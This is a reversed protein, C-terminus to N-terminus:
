FKFGLTLLIQDKSNKLSIDEFNPQPNYLGFKETSNRYAIDAFFGNAMYGLGLSVVSNNDSVKTEPLNFDSVFPTPYYEFGARASLSQTFKLEGGMRLNFVSKFSNKVNYNLDSVDYKMSSYDVIEGDISLLAFKNIVVAGSLVFKYPSNLGYNYLSLGDSSYSQALHSEMTLRMDDKVKFFTPAHFAAGLRVFSVPKFIAGLKLNYGTGKIYNDEFYTFSNNDELIETYEKYKTIDVDQIGFTAGIYFKHAFNLGGAFVYEKIGGKYSYNIQQDVLEDEYLINVYQDDTNANVPDMLYTEWALKAPWDRYEIDAIDRNLYSNTLAESNAWNVIGDLFSVPSQDYMEYSNQNLDLITNMGIGLNFSVLGTESSLGTNISGVYGVNNIAHSYKNDSFIDGTINMDSNNFRATPTIVFESSRYIAIGAPNISLSTFDGGLAGFANGMAAARATGNIKQSSLRYADALTQAKLIVSSFLLLGALFVYKKM